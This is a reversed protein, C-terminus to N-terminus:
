RWSGSEFFEFNSGLACNLKRALSQDISASIVDNEGWRDATGFLERVFEQSVAVRGIVLGEEILDGANRKVIAQSRSIFALIPDSLTQSGVCRSALEEIQKKQDVSMILYITRGTWGARRYRINSIWEAIEAESYGLLLSELCEATDSWVFKHLVTRTALYAPVRWMENYTTAFVYLTERDTETKLSHEVALVGMQLVANLVEVYANDDVGAREFSFVSMAKQGSRVAVLEAELDCFKAVKSQSELLLSLDMM